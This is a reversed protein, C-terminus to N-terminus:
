FIAQKNLFNCNHIRRFIKKINKHMESGSYVSTKDFSLFEDVELLLGYVQERDTPVLKSNGSMCQEREEAAFFEAAEAASTVWKFKDEKPKVCKIRSVTPVNAFIYEAEGVSTVPPTDIM